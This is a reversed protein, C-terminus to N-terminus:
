LRGSHVGEAGTKTVVSGKGAAMINTYFRNQTAVNYLYIMMASTIRRCSMRAAALAMASLPMAKVPIGYGDIGTAVNLFDSRGLELLVMVLREQVPHDKAIYGELPEGIHDM